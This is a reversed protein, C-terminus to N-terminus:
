RKGYKKFDDASLGLKNGLAVLDPSFNDSGGSGSGKGAGGSGIVSDLVNSKKGGSALKYADGLKSRKVEDTDEPKINQDYFYKIKKGLEEDGESLTQINRDLEKGDLVQKLTNIESTIKGELEEVKKGLEEKSKRLAAVNKGKDTGSFEILDKTAQELKAKTDELSTQLEEVKQSAEESIQTKVEEIRENVEDETYAEIKTGDERYLEAM